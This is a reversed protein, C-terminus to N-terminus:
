HAANQGAPCRWEGCAFANPITRHIRGNRGRGFAIARGVMGLFADNAEFIRGGIDSLLIGAPSVEFLARLLADRSAAARSAEREAEARRYLAREAAALGRRLVELEAVSAPPLMDATVRDEPGNDGSAAVRAAHESLRRLPV